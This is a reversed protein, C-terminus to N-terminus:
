SFDLIPFSQPSGMESIIILLMASLFDSGGEEARWLGTSIHVLETKGKGGACM